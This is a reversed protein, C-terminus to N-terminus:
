SCNYSCKMKKEPLPVPQVNDPLMVPIQPVYCDIAELKTNRAVDWYIHEQPNRPLDIFRNVSIERFAYRPDTQLTSIPSLLNSCLPPSQVNIKNINMKNVKGNKLKTSKMNRNQLISELEIFSQRSPKQGKRPTITSNGVSSPGTSARPGNVSFCSNCNYFKSDDMMRQMPKISDSVQENLYNTDYIQRSNYGSMINGASQM